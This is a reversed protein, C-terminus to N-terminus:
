ANGALGIAFYMAVLRRPKLNALFPMYRNLKSTSKATHPQEVDPANSARIVGLAPLSSSESRVAM